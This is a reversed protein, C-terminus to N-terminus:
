TRSFRFSFNVSRLTPRGVPSEGSGPRSSISCMRDSLAVCNAGDGSPWHIANWSRKRVNMAGNGRLPRGTSTPGPVLGERHLAYRAVRPEVEV